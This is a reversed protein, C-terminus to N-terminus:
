RRETKIVRQKVRHIGEKKLSPILIPQLEVYIAPQLPKSFSQWLRIRSDVDLSAFHLKCEQGAFQMSPQDHICQLIRELLYDEREKHFGGFTAEENVFLVYSLCIAIGPFQREDESIDIFDQKAGQHDERIHYLYAGIEYDQDKLQPIRLCILENSGVDNPVLSDKLLQILAQGCEAIM